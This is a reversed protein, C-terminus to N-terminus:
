GNTQTVDQLVEWQEEYYTKIVGSDNFEIDLFYPGAKFDVVFAGMNFKGAVADTKTFGSGVTLSKVVPGTKQGYRIECKITTATLNKPSGNIIIEFNKGDFTDGKKYQKIDAM